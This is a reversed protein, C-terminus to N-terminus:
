KNIEIISVTESFTKEYAERFINAFMWNPFEGAIFSEIEKKESNWRKAVVAYKM